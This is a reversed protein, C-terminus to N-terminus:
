EGFERQPRWLCAVSTVCCVVPGPLKKASPVSLRFIKVENWRFCSPKQPCTHCPVCLFFARSGETPSCGSFSRKGFDSSRLHDLRLNARKELPSVCPVRCLWPAECFYKKRKAINKHNGTLNKTTKNKLSKIRLYDKGGAHPEFKCALSWPIAREVSQALWTSKRNLKQFSSQCRNPLFSWVSQKRKTQKTLNDYLLM